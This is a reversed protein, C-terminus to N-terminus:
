EDDEHDFHSWTFRACACKRCATGLPFHEARSHDCKCIDVEAREELTMDKLATM